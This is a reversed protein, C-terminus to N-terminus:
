QQFSSSRHLLLRPVPHWLWWPLVNHLLSSLMLEGESLPAPNKEELWITKKKWNGAQIECWKLLQFYDDGDFHVQFGYCLILTKELTFWLRQCCMSPKALTQEGYFCQQEGEEEGPGATGSFYSIFARFLM